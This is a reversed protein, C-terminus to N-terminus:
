NIYHKKLGQFRSQLSYTERESLFKTFPSPSKLPSDSMYVQINYKSSAKKLDNEIPQLKENRTFDWLKTPNGNTAFHGKQIDQLLQRGDSTTLNTNILRVITLSGHNLISKLINWSGPLSCDVLQLSQLNPLKGKQISNKLRVLDNIGFGPKNRYSSIALHKLLPYSKQLWISANSPKDYKTINPGITINMKMSDKLILNKNSPDIEYQTSIHMTPESVDQYLYSLTISQMSRPLSVVSSFREIIITDISLQYPINYVCKECNKLILVRLSQMKPIHQLLIRHVEEEHMNEMRIYQLQNHFLQKFLKPCNGDPNKEEKVCGPEFIVNKRSCLCGWNPIELFRFKPATKLWEILDSIHNDMCHASSKSLLQNYVSELHLAYNLQHCIPNNQVNQLNPLDLFSEESHLLVHLIVPPCVARALCKKFVYGNDTIETHPIYKGVKITPSFTIGDFTDYKDYYMPYGIGLRNLKHHLPLTNTNQWPVKGNNSPLSRFFLEDHTTTYYGWDITKATPNSVAYHMWQFWNNRFHGGNCYCLPQEQINEGTEAILMETLTNSVYGVHKLGLGNENLLDGVTSNIM